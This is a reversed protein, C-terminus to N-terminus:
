RDCVAILQQASHALAHEVSVPAGRLQAITGAGCLLMITSLDLKLQEVFAIAHEVGHNIIIRVFPLAMSTCSAGLAMSKAIHMANRIGGSAIISHASAWPADRLAVLIAATSVGWDSFLEANPYPRETQAHRYAEVQIWNSGGRGAIDIHKVGCEILAQVAQPAIGCGTEKVMIPYPSANVLKEVMTRVGVFDRDGDQQFLEQGCNLHVSLMDVRLRDCLALIADPTHEILQVAGINAIVPVDAAIDKIAFQSALEPHRFLVRMSGLGCAIRCQQAVTAVLQNFDHKTKMGGSMPSIILPLSLTHGGFSVRTDIQAFNLEPLANHMLRVSDFDGGGEITYTQEDTCINVHDAKRTPINADSATSVIGMKGYQTCTHM